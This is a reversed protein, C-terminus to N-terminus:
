TTWLARGVIFCGSFLMLVFLVWRYVREPFGSLVMTGVTSGIWSALLTATLLMPYSLITVGIVGFLVTKLLHQVTLCASHTAMLQERDTFRQAMLSYLLPGTAGVFVTLFGTLAAAVLPNSMRALVRSEGAFLTRVTSALMFLGVVIQLGRAGIRFVIPMAASSALITLPVFAAFYRWEVHKRLHWARSLASVGTIWAHTPIAVPAPLASAVVALQLGGTPGVASVFLSVLFTGLSVVLFSHLPLGEIL